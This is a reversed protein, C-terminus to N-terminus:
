KKDKEDKYEGGFMQHVGIFENTSGLKYTGDIIALNSGIQVEVGEFIETRIDPTDNYIIQQPASEYFTYGLYFNDISGLEKAGTKKYVGSCTLHLGEEDEYCYKKSGLTKFKKLLSGSKQEYIGMYYREENYDFYAGTQKDLKTIQENLKDIKDLIEPTAICFDSDTDCYITNVGTINLIRQLHERGLATVYVGWSYNLFNNRNGYFDSLAEDKDIETEPKDVKWWGKYADGEKFDLTVDPRVPDTLMMGPISNLRDKAKRYLYELEEKKDEDTERELDYKLKCKEGFYQLIKDRIPKPLYGRDAIYVDRVRAYDYDYQQNILKWDVDTVTIDVVEAELIRGNDYLYKESYNKPIGRCQTTAIYPVPQGKKLKVNFFSVRFLCCYKSILEELEEISDIEGYREFASTPFRNLFCVFPYQSQGDVPLVDYWVQNVKYISPLANGGRCAERLLIYVNTYLKQKLFVDQYYFWMQKRIEKRIDRRIYSTSTLPITALTDGENQMKFWIYEYLSLVDLMCYGFEVDDLETEPTRFKNYDLDGAAKPHIVGFENKTAIELNMNSLAYSCRFELGNNMLVRIPERKHTAFINFGGYWERLFNVSFQYEMGLNHSYIIMRHKKNIGLTAILTDLFLHLSTWDRGYALYGGVCMQWHYMFAYTGYKSYVNSTEIDYTAYTKDIVYEAKKKKLVEDKKLLEYPFDHATYATYTDLTGDKRKLGVERM